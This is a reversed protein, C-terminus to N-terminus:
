RKLIERKRGVKDAYRKTAWTGSRVEEQDTQPAVILLNCEHVIDHNRELYPKTSRVVVNTSYPKYKEACFARKRPNEPPHIMICPVGVELAIQHAEEDAGICDGHHFQQCKMEILLRRLEAKQLDSMGHQTGTFGVTNITSM